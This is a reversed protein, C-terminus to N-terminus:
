EVGEQVDGKGCLGQNASCFIFSEDVEHRGVPDWEVVKGGRSCSSPPADALSRSEEPIRNGKAAPVFSPTCSTRDLTRVTTPPLVVRRSVPVRTRLLLSARTILSTSANYASTRSAPFAFRFLCSGMKRGAKTKGETEKEAPRRTSFCSAMLLSLLLTKRLVRPQVHVASTLSRDTLYSIEEEFFSRQM